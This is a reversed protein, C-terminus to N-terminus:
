EDDITEDMYPDVLKNHVVDQKLCFVFFKM